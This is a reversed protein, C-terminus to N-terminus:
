RRSLCFRVTVLREIVGGPLSSRQPSSGHMPQGRAGFHRHPREPRRLQDHSMSQGKLSRRASVPHKRKRSRFHAAGTVYVPSGDFSKGSPHKRPRPIVSGWWHGHQTEPRFNLRLRVGIMSALASPRAALALTMRLARSTPPFSISKPRRAGATALAATKKQPAESRGGSSGSSRLQRYDHHAAGTGEAAM